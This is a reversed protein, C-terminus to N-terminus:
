EGTLARIELKTKKSILYGAVIQGQMVQAARCLV